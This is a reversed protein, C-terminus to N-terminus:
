TPPQNFPDSGPQGYTQSGYPAPSQYPGSASSGHQGYQQPGPAPYGTASYQQVLGTTARWWARASTSLLCALFAGCYILGLIPVIPNTSSHTTTGDSSVTTDSSLSGIFSLVWLVLFVIQLVILTIAPGSRGPKLLALPVALGVALLLAVIGVGILVGGALDGLDGLSDANSAASGLIIMVVAALISGAFEIWGLVKVAM